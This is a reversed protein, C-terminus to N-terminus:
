FKRVSLLLCNTSFKTPFLSPFFPVASLHLTM